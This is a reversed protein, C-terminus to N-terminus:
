YLLLNNTSDPILVLIEPNDKLYTIIHVFLYFEVVSFILINISIFTINMVLNYLILMINLIFVFRLETLKLNFNNVM